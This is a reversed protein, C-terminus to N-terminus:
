ENDLKSLMNAINNKTRLWSFADSGEPITFNRIAVIVPLREKKNLSLYHETLAAVAEVTTLTGARVQEMVDTVLQTNM